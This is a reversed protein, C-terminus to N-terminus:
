RYQMSRFSRGAANQALVQEIEPINEVERTKEAELTEVVPLFMSLDESDREDYHSCRAKCGRPLRMSGFESLSTRAMLKELEDTSYTELFENLLLFLREFRHESLAPEELLSVFEHEKIEKTTM